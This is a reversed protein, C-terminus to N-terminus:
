LRPSSADYDLVQLYQISAQDQPGPALPHQRDELNENHSALAEDAALDEDKAALPENLWVVPRPFGGEKTFNFSCRLNQFATRESSAILADTNFMDHDSTYPNSLVTVLHSACLFPMALSVTFLVVYVQFYGMSYTFNTIPTGFVFMFVLVDCVFKMLAAWLNPQNSAFADKLTGIAGRIRVSINCILQSYLLGNNVGEFMEKLIWSNVVEHMKNDAPELM